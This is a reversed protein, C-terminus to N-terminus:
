LGTLGALAADIPSRRIHQLDPFTWTILFECPLAQSTEESSLYASEILPLNKHIFSGIAYEVSINSSDARNRIGDLPSVIYHPTVQSSGGGMVTPWRALEGIVAIKKIKSSELPLVNNRNALLVITERAADRIL